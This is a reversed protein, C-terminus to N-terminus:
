GARLVPSADCRFSVADFWFKDFLQADREFLVLGDRAVRYRLLGGASRLDALDIADTGLALSLDAHLSAIETGPAALYGFDWDSGAHAEGRARSGHLVLLQLGAHARAADRLAPVISDLSTVGVAAMSASRRATTQDAGQSM